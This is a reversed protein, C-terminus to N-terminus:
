YQHPYVVGYDKKRPPRSEGAGYLPIGPVYSLLAIEAPRNSLNQFSDTLVISGSLYGYTSGDYTIASPKPYATFTM